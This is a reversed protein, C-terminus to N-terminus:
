ADPMRLEILASYFGRNQKATGTEVSGVFSWIGVIQELGFHKLRAMDVENRIVWTSGEHAPVRFSGVRSEGSHPVQRPFNASDDSFVLFDFLRSSSSPPEREHFISTIPHIETKGDFCETFICAATDGDYRHSKDIVWTGMVTVQRDVLPALYAMMVNSDEASQGQILHPPEVECEIMMNTNPRGVRPNRLMEEDPAPKVKLCWDGDTALELDRVHGVLSRNDALEEWGWLLGV